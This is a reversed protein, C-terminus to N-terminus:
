RKWLERLEEFNVPTFGIVEVSVNKYRPDYLSNKHLHGHLQGRFRVVSEPHVPIHALLINDLVHYGRIDKFYEAYVSLKMTDHNGKILVKRGNLRRMIRHFDSPKCIAVDGLHYVKDDPKVVKNWNEIMTEDM